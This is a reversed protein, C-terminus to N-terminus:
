GSPVLKTAPDAFVHKQDSTIIRVVDSEVFIFPFMQRYGDTPIQLGYNRLDLSYKSMVSFSNWVGRRTPPRQRTQLNKAEELQRREMKNKPPKKPDAWVFYKRGLQM